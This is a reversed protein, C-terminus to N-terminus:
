DPPRYPRSLPPLGNTSVVVLGDGREALANGFQFGLKFILLGCSDGGAGQGNIARAMVNNSISGAVTLLNCSQTVRVLENTKNSEFCQILISNLVTM